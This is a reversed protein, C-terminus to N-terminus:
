NEGPINRPETDPNRVSFPGLNSRDNTLDLSSSQFKTHYQHINHTTSNHGGPNIKGPDIVVPRTQHPSMPQESQHTQLPKTAPFHNPAHRNASSSTLHCQHHLSTERPLSWESVSRHIRINHNAAIRSAPPRPTHWSKTCEAPIMSHGAPSRTVAETLERRSSYQTTDGVPHGWSAPVYRRHLVPVLAAQSLGSCHEPVLVPRCLSACGPPEM